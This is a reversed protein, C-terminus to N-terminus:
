IKKYILDAIKEGLKLIFWEDNKDFAGLQYSDIDIEGIIKGDKYIPVVLESKTEPFCQLYTPNNSVDYVNVIRNERVAMGCLGKDIPIVKHETEKDGSFSLLELKDGKLVYIGVWSYKPFEKRLFDLIYQIKEDEPLSIGDIGELFSLYKKKISM